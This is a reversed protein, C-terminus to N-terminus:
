QFIDKREDIIRCAEYPSMSRPTKFVEEKMGYNVAEMMLWYCTWKARKPAKGKWKGTLTNWAHKILDFYAYDVGIQDYAFWWINTKQKETANIKIVFYTAPHKFHQKFRHADVGKELAGIALGARIVDAHNPIHDTDKDGRLWQYLRQFGQIAKGIFSNSRSLVIYVQNDVPLDSIETVKQFRDLTRM